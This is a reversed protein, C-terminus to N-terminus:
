AYSCKGALKSFYPEAVHFKFSSYYDQWSSNYHHDRAFMKRQNASVELDELNEYFM